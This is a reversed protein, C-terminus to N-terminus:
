WDESCPGTVQEYKGDTCLDPPTPCDVNYADRVYKYCAIKIGGIGIMEYCSVPSGWGYWGGYTCGKSCCTDYTPGCMYYHICDDASAIVALGFVILMIGALVLYVVLAEALKRM